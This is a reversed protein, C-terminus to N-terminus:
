RRLSAHPLLSCAKAPLCVGREERGPSRSRGIPKFDPVERGGAGEGAPFGRVGGGGRARERGLPPPKGGALIQRFGM